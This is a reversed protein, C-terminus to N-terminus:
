YPRDVEWQFCELTQRESNIQTSSTTYNPVTVNLKLQPWPELFVIIYIVIVMLFIEPPWSSM